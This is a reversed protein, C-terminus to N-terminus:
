AASAKRKLEELKRVEERLAIKALEVRVIQSTIAEVIPRVSM